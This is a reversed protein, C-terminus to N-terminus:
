MESEYYNPFNGPHIMASSHKGDAQLGSILTGVVQKRSFPNLFQVTIHCCLFWSRAPSFHLGRSGFGHGPLATAQPLGERGGPQRGLPRLLPASSLYGGLEAALM